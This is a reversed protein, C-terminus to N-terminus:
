EIKRCELAYDVAQEWTMARGAELAEAFAEEGLSACVAAQESERKKRDPVSMPIGLADRLDAACGWLRVSREGREERVALSAFEELCFAIWSWDGLERFIALSKEYQARASSYDGQHRAVIGMGNLTSAIGSKDGVERFTVLSEEFVGHASAYDGQACLVSGLGSLSYAIGNKNGVERFIELSEEYLRHASAYDGQEIYLDGLSNLSSAIGSKDGIERRLALSEEYLSRSSAFDGQNRVANGLNNLSSALGNRDGLERQIALSEEYLIRASAYDGQNRAVIGLCNLCYAIGNKDRLERFIALSEDYLTRASASDGLYFALMGAYNLAGARVRNRAQAGTQSLCALLHEKGESWYGRVEWFTALAGALRLAAEGSAADRLNLVLAQRLNDHETELFSLWKTQEPGRLNPNTEEALLLFYDCYRRQVRTTEGAAALKEAGFHRMTELLRYRGRCPVEEVEEYLVLSKDVLGTLLDLVEEEDIGEGYAVTGAAELSWGGAFVSLRRLVVQEPPTLLNYSWDILARLTQHRPLATRNGGTLLHFRDDLRAVVQELPMARVRAAALEIALPIGDLRRCIQLVQPANTESLTFGGPRRSHAREVFLRIAESHGLDELSPTCAGPAVCQGEPLSLGPVRYIVEGTIGLTDRSTALLRLDPCAQLLAEALQGCALPLHECNDLVLLLNRVELHACLTDALPRGPEERVGLASAVAQPVLAADALPALDVFWTGDAYYPASAEATAIALRTKGVGGSGTLTVLRETTLRSVVEGIQKERGVLSSLPRPIRGQHRPIPGEVPASVPQPLGQAQATRIQEFLAVTAQSPALNMEDRLLRRLDRYAQAAAAFDGATALAQMLRQWVSERLPDVALVRRLYGACLAPERRSMAGAALTELAQLYAHERVRREPLAWEELCGQLLPARYLSIAHELSAADGRKVAADFDFVDVRAGTLDLHLTRPTPATLRVADSGLVRRLECLSRRLHGLTAAEDPTDPWLLGALWPRSLAQAGSLVLLALLWQEKRTRTRPLAQGRQEVELAGFLRISLLDASNCPRVSTLTELLAADTEPSYM